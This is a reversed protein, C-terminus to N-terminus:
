GIDTEDSRAWWLQTSVRNLLLGHTEHVLIDYFRTNDFPQNHKLMGHIAHLLKRMVACVAQMPLKSNDIFHEFYAKVHPNHQKASLAPMYLAVGIHANGSKALRTKSSAKARSSPKPILDQM